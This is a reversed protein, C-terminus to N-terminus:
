QDQAIGKAAALLTKRQADDLSHYVEILEQLRKDESPENEKPPRATKKEQQQYRQQIARAYSQVEEWMEPTVDADGGYLAVLPLSSESRSDFPENEEERVNTRGLLYDTSVGFFEAIKDIHKKYSSNKGSKWDTFVGKSIDLFDTLDKQTKKQEKLLILIKDITRLFDVGQKNIVIFTRM